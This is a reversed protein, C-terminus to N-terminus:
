DAIKAWSDPAIRYPPKRFHEVLARPIPRANAGRAMWASVTARSVDRKVVAAAEKAIDDDTKGAELFARKAPHRRKTRGAAIRLSKTTPENELQMKSGLISRGHSMLLRAKALKRFERAQVRLERAVSEMEEAQKEATVAATLLESPTM